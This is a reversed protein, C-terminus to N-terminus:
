ALVCFCCVGWVGETDPTLTLGAPLRATCLPARHEDLLTATRGVDLRVYGDSWSKRKQRVHRTYLAAYLAASM